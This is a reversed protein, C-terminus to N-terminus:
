NLGIVIALVISMILRIWTTGPNRVYERFNRLFLIQIQFWWPTPYRIKKSHLRQGSLPPAEVKEKGDNMKETESFIRLSEDLSPRPPPLEVSGFPRSSNQERLIEMTEVLIILFLYSSKLCFISGSLNLIMARKQFLFVKKRLTLSHIQDLINWKGRM